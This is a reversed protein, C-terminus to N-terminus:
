FKLCAIFNGNVLKNIATYLPKRRNYFRTESDSRRWDNKNELLPIIYRTYELWAARVTNIKRDMKFNEELCGEAIVDNPTISQILSSPAFRKPSQSPSKM